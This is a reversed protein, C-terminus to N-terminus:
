RSVQLNIIMLRNVQGKPIAIVDERAAFKAWKAAANGAPRDQKVLWPQLEVFARGPSTAKAPAAVIAVAISDGADRAMVCTTVAPNLYSAAVTGGHSFHHPQGERAVRYIAMFVDDIAITRERRNGNVVELRAKIREYLDSATSM